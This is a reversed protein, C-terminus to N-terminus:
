NLELLQRIIPDASGYGCLEEVWQIGQESMSDLHSPDALLVAIEVGFDEMSAVHMGCPLAEGTSSQKLMGEAAVSTALVPIGTALSQNIKGKVGAGHLLPAITFKLDKIEDEVSEVWGIVTVDEYAEWQPRHKDTQNGIVRFHLDPNISKIDEWYTELFYNISTVNPEHLCNGVFGIVNKKEAAPLFSTVFEAELNGVILTNIQFSNRIFDQEFDSVVVVQDARRLTDLESEYCTHKTLATTDDLSIGDRRAERIYHIDVTDYTWPPLPKDGFSTIFNKAAVLWGVWYHDFTRHSLLHSLTSDTQSTIVEVGHSNLHRVWHANRQTQNKEHSSYLVVDIHKQLIMVIHYLRKSGSDMDTRVEYPTVVLIQKRRHILQPYCSYHKPDLYGSLDWKKLFKEKNIIQYKKISSSDDTNTGCTRGELHIIKSEASYIVSYGEQKARVCLDTDEYYAPIYRDDFMGSEIFWKREVSLSAGSVYDAERSFNFYPHECPQNRGINTASGDSFIAGGAEQLVDDEYILKSGVIKNQSSHHKEIGELWGPLVFTDNNLFIIYDGSAQQASFNCNTLFGSQSSQNQILKVHLVKHKKLIRHYSTKKSDDAIIIELDTREKYLTSISRLCDLTMEPYEYVPIIISLKVKTSESFDIPRQKIEQIYEQCSSKKNLEGTPLGEINSNQGELTKLQKFFDEELASYYEGTIKTLEIESLHAFFDTKLRKSIKTENYASLIKLFKAPHRYAYKRPARHGLSRLIQKYYNKRINM